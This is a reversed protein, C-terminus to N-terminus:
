LAVEVGQRQAAHRLAEDRTALAARKRIALELYVADYLTLNEARALRLTEGWAQVMMGEDTTIPMAALQGLSSVIAQYTIRKRREAQWLANGVEVHWLPPVLAGRVTVRDLLADTEPRVESEIFWALVVSCDLVVPM